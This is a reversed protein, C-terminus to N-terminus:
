PQNKPTNKAEFSEFMISVWLLDEGKPDQSLGVLLFIRLIKIPKLIKEGRLLMIKKKKNGL